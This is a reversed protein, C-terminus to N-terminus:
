RTISGGEGVVLIEEATLQGGRDRLEIEVVDGRELNEPQYRRGQYEVTTSTDYHVVVVGSRGTSYRSDNRSPEIELTRDRTDVYRVTGRLESTGLYDDDRTTGTGGSVDYLVEIEEALLRDGSREVDARIRDGRELDQPRYNRGQFEVRTSDDYYLSVQDDDGNRLNSRYGTGELDVVIRRDLTDVRAVTGQVDGVSKYTTNDSGRGGGLVDDLGTSGCGALIAAAALATLFLTWRITRM